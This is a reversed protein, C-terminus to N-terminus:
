NRVELASAALDNLNLGSPATGQAQIWDFALEAHVEDCWKELFPLTTPQSKGWTIANFVVADGGSYFVLPVDHGGVITQDGNPDLDWPKGAAFQDMAYQPVQFGIRVSGFLQIGWKVHDTSHPDISVFEDLKQGLFGTNQLYWLMNSEVCGNDTNTPDAPNYGGVIEYLKEIDADAPKIMTGTNASRLMTTHGTDACVCDGLQDNLFVGWPVKVAATYDNSMAPPPGLADLTTRMLAMSRWTHPTVKPALKGFRM